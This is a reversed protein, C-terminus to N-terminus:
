GEIQRPLIRESTVTVPEKHVVGHLINEELLDVLDEGPVWNRTSVVPRCLVLAEIDAINPPWDVPCRM